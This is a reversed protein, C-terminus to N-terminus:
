DGAFVSYKHPKATGFIRWFLGKGSARVADLRTTADFLNKLSLQGNFVSALPLHASELQALKQAVLPELRPTPKRSQETAMPVLRRGARMRFMDGSCPQGLIFDAWEGGNDKLLSDAPIVLLMGNIPCNARHKKLLGLFEIWETTSGPQAEQFLMKGATDLIVAHNTFWWHMNITGGVGQM